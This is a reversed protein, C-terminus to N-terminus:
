IRTVSRGGGAAKLPLLPLEAPSSSARGGGGRAAACGDAGGRSPPSCAVRQRVGAGAPHVRLPRPIRGSLRWTQVMGSNGIRVPFAVDVCTEDTLDEPLCANLGVLPFLRLRRRTNRVPVLGRLCLPVQGCHRRCLRQLRASAPLDSLDATGAGGCLPSVFEAFTSPNSLSLAPSPNRLSSWSSSSM